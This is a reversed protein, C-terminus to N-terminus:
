RIYCAHHEGHSFIRLSQTTTDLSLHAWPVGADAAIINAQSACSMADTCSRQSNEKAHASPGRIQKLTHPCCRLDRAASQEKQSIGDHRQMVILVQEHRSPRRATVTRDYPERSRGRPVNRGTNM